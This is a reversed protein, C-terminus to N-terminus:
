RLNRVFVYMSDDAMLVSGGYVAKIVDSLEVADYESVSLKVKGDSIERDIQAFVPLYRAYKKAIVRYSPHYKERFEDSHRVASFGFKEWEIIEEDFENVDLKIEGDTILTRAVELKEKLKSLGDEKKASLCFLKGLTKATLGVNLYSLHVRVYDGDLEEILVEDTKFVGEYEKQIYSVANDFSSVLHDCGFSSHFIFKFLDQIKLEPYKRYHSILLDKTQKNTYM